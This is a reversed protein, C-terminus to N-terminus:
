RDYPRWDMQDIYDANYEKDLAPQIVHARSCLLKLEENKQPERALMCAGELSSNGVALLRDVLSYPIFGLMALDEPNAHKGLAGALAFVKLENAEMGATKLLLRLASAFAAKAKLLIELDAKELVQGFPLHLIDNKLNSLIKQAIPLGCSANYHGTQDLINLRLLLSVLSIYGTAGIGRCEDFGTDQTAEFFTTALGSPAASFSTIVGKGAPHGCRPGVGEMAPGLPASVLYLSNEKNLLALEANTGLDALLFPREINDAILALLGASIDGGVFPAPLPPFVTEILESFGPYKIDISEGGHWEQRYPAACLGAIDRALLIQTMATNAAICIRELRFDPQDMSAIIDAIAKLGIESLSHKGSEQMAFALRAIVDAGAGAQPNVCKGEAVACGEPTIARWEIATTGFDVGLYAAGKYGIVAITNRSSAIEHSQIPLELRILEFDPVLHHCALRWGALLEAPSFYRTDEETPPPPSDAFRIKCRGCLALGACLPAPAIQGSLWIAESFRQGALAPIKLPNDCGPQSVELIPM